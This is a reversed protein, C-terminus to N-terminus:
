LMSNVDLTGKLVVMAVVGFCFSECIWLSSWSMWFMSRWSSSMFWSYLGKKGSGMTQQAQSCKRSSCQWLFICQFFLVISFSSDMWLSSFLDGSACSEVRRM